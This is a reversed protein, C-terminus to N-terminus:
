REVTGDTSASALKSLDKKGSSGDGGATKPDLLTIKVEETVQVESVQIQKQEEVQVPNNPEPEMKLDKATIARNAVQEQAKKM